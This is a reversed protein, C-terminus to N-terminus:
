VHHKRYTLSLRLGNANPEPRMGHHFNQDFKNKLVLMDGAELPIAYYPRGNSQKTKRKGKADLEWVCFNRTAGFSLSVITPNTGLQPILQSDRHPFLDGEPTYVNAVVCNAKWDLYSDVLDRYFVLTGAPDWIFMPKQKGNFCYDVGEEGFRAMKHDQTSRAPYGKSWTLQCKLYPGVDELVNHIFLDPSHVVNKHLEVLRDFIEM